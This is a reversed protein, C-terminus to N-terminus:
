AQATVTIGEVTLQLSNANVVIDTNSPTWSFTAAFSAPVYLLTITSLSFIIRTIFM